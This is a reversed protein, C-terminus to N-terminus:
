GNHEMEGIIEMVERSWVAGSHQLPHSEIQKRGSVTRFVMDTDIHVTAEYRADMRQKLEGASAPNRSGKRATGTVIGTVKCGYRLFLRRIYDLSRYQPTYVWIDYDRSNLYHFLAPIGARIRERFIKKSFLKPGPMTEAQEDKGACFVVEDLDLVARKKAGTKSLMALIDKEQTLDVIEVPVTKFGSRHAALWRHHGNLIMYGDPATKEVVIPESAGLKLFKLQALSGKASRFEKEYRSIIEMNPGIDPSCFEDDPNPHLRAAPTKRIFTRRLLGARVPYYVGKVKRIEEDLFVRLDTKGYTTM